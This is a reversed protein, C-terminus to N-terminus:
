RERRPDCSLVRSLDLSENNKSRFRRIPRDALNKIAKEIANNLDKATPIQSRDCKCGYCDEFYLGCEHCHDWILAM